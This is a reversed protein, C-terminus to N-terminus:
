GVRHRCRRGSGTAAQAFLGRWSRGVSALVTGGGGGRRAAVVRAYRDRLGRAAAPRWLRHARASSALAVGGGAAADDPRVVRVSGLTVEGGSGGEFTAPLVAVDERRYVRLTLRYDGPPTGAPVLLGHHDAQPEGLPMDAFESLGGLPPADRQAWVYGTPGVLRLGVSYEDAPPASLLWTLDATVVGWGSELPGPNLAASELALWEGFRAAVGQAGPEGAAFLSLVTNDGYWESLTPYANQVLYADIQEELVRGMTRHDALWLRGHDALLADLDAAMRAPDDAWFQRERPLVERPTLVLAPRVEDDSLYARFYGVQWPHVCVVADSPLALARLREAVPRYDDTAYRSTTYFFGLSWLNLILFLALPAVFLSRDFRWTIRLGAAVLLLYAPLALLLLRELRPPNFPLVLNVVFGCALTVALIVLPWHGM